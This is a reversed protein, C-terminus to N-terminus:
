VFDQHVLVFNRKSARKERSEINRRSYFDVSIRIYPEKKNFRKGKIEHCFNANCPNTKIQLGIEEKHNAM